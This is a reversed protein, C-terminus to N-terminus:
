KKRTTNDRMYRIYVPDTEKYIRWEVLVVHGHKNETAIIAIGGRNELNDLFEIQDMSLKDTLTKVECGVFLGAPSIGIVDPVGKRGIFARGPTPHNNQIWCSVQRYEMEKIASARIQGKTLM